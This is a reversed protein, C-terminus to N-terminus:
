TQVYAFLFEDRLEELEQFIVPRYARGTLLPLGIVPTGSLPGIRLSALKVYTPEGGITPNMLDFGYWKKLTAWPSKGSEAFSDCIILKPRLNELVCEFWALSHNWVPTPIEKEGKTRLPCVNFCPTARMTTEAEESGFLSTFAQWVRGQHTRGSGQWCKADLWDNYPTDSLADDYYALKDHDCTDVCRAPDITPGPQQPKGGPNIGIFVCDVRDTRPEFMWRPNYWPKINSYDFGHRKVTRPWSSASCAEMTDAIDEAWQELEKASKTTM